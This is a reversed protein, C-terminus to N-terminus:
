KGLRELLAPVHVQDAKYNGTLVYMVINTGAWMAMERQRPMSQTLPYLVDGNRDTAWAAALDNSTIIIPSVGDGARVPQDSDPSAKPLAEIWTKGEAYRGPFRNILYFAKTLVHDAPVPELEPVSLGALVLRLARMEPTADSGPLALAADHTDFIVTGGDRMFADVKALILADPIPRGPAMPWYILPYVALDDNALDVGVADGPELATREAIFTSLGTLGARSEEDIAADGTVVYALHTQLAGEADKPAIPGATAKETALFLSAVVLLAVLPAVALSRRMLAKGGGRLHFTAITDATFLLAATILLWFRLDISKSRELPLRVADLSSFDMRSLTDSSELVNLAFPNEPDGYFGAPHDHDAARQGARDAPLDSPMPEGLVGFGNLTKFPALPVKVFSTAATGDAVGSLAVIRRLMGVFVGSLPLSSWSTDATIHFLIISGRGRKEATVIPTGDSLAAWTKHALDADPEALLQRTVTIESPTELGAFPSEPPFPSLTKPTEWSLAGGLARDGPRIRVPMLADHMAAMRPGAFRVLVGGQAVYDKLRKEVEGALNGLDAMVILSVKADIMAGVAESIGGRPEILDAYPRLAQVVFWNPSLLPQAVDASTGSLLGIKRRRNQGDVLAVAGASRTGELEVRAIENRLETPLVFLAKAAKASMEFSFPAEGIVRSKSDYARVRGTQAQLAVDRVLRVSLGDSSHNLGSLALHAGDQALVTLRHGEVLRAFPALINPDRQRAIGDTIFIIEADGHDGLFAALNPLASERDVAFAAPLLSHLRDKIASPSQLSLAHGTDSTALLAMPRGAKDAEDAIDNAAALRESWDQAAAWGSDLIVLVPGSGKIVLQDPNISPGASAMVVCAALVSRLIVLWLPLRRPEPQKAVKAILLPLPPFPVAQPRPPNVRLLLWLGPLALLALLLYPASFSLSFLGMM